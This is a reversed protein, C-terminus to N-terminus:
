LASDLVPNRQDNEQTTDVHLLHQPQAGKAWELM